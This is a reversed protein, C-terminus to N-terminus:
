VREDKRDLEADGFTLLVREAPKTNDLAIKIGM